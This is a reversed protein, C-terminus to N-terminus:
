SYSTTANWDPDYVVSFSDGLYSVLTQVSTDGGTKVALPNMM